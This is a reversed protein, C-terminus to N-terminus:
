EATTHSVALGEQLSPYRLNVGLENLLRRNDLRRSEALYSMMEKSLANKAQDLSIQTPRPLGYLDAVRNFYDTMTGPHGDSVNYMGHGREAAAVCVEALDDAHIRNTYGCDQECLVPTGRRLREIPLRGPGYIGGVRLIVAPVNNRQEWDRLLNEAALRRRARDTAPKVASAETVWAGQCDGYVGSTSIYIIKRPASERPIASLFARIRPDGEGQPPPPAFYFILSDATPLAPFKDPQDLDGVYGPRGAASIQTATVAHRTLAHVRWGRLQCLAAVRRGIDGYGIILATELTKSWASIPWM